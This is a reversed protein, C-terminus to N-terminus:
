ERGEDDRVGREWAGALDDVLAGAQHVDGQLLPCGELAVAPLSNTQPPSLALLSPTARESAGGGVM